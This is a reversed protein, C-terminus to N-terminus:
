QTATTDVVALNYVLETISILDKLDLQEELTHVKEMGTAVIATPLGAGCFINADSGGGAIIYELSKGAAQAAADIRKLVASDREIALAPYDDDIDISLSPRAEGTLETPQWSDIVSQFSDTIEKTYHQLKEQSHSRVEGEISIEEPVINTAVGGKIVGLNCTSEQDLRGLKLKGIAEVALTLANIGAEPCLGAHAAQGKITIKMKNAAPAGIIVNDIGSSDLAYGFKTQIKDYEVHKAGLLGIEECTTIVVEIMPHKEGSEKLMQMAEIIAAIGAKDDSGLITDGKSTFIDGTRVVQVGEGPQVTDMHCSLFFGDQAPLDGNFRIILNGSESGTREASQDEYILDAGLDTFVEKLYASIRGEQRSPSSIECLKTFSQALRDRNLPPKM